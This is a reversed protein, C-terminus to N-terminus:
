AASRPGTAPPWPCASSSTTRGRTGSSSSATRRSSWPRSVPSNPGASRRSGHSSSRPLTFGHLAGAVRATGPAEDAAGVRRGDSPLRVPEPDDGLRDRWHDLGRGADPDTRQWAAYDGFDVTPRPLEETLSAPGSTEVAYRDALEELFVGFAWADVVIHHATFLLLHEREALRFLHTRM